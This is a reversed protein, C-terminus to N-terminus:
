EPRGERLLSAPDFDAPVTLRRAKLMGFGGEVTREQEREGRTDRELLIVRVAKGNWDLFQAPLDVQSDHPITDFEIANMM